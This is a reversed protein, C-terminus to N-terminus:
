LLCERWKTRDLLDPNEFIFSVCENPLDFVIDKRDIIMIEDIHLRTVMMMEIEIDHKIRCFLKEVLSAAVCAMTAM